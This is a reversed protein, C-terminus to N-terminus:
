GLVYIYVLYDRLSEFGFKVYMNYAKKNKHTVSLFLAKEGKEKMRKISENLLLKGLGMGQYASFIIIDSVTVRTKLFINVMIFGALKENYYINISYEPLFIGEMGGYLLTYLEYLEKPSPTSFIIRDYEPIANFCTNIHEKIPTILFPGFKINSPIPISLPTYKKLDLFMEKRKLPYGGNELLFSGFDDPHLTYYTLSRSKLSKVLEIVKEFLIHLKKESLTKFFRFSVTHSSMFEKLLLIGYISRWEKIEYLRLRHDFPINFKEYNYVRVLRM